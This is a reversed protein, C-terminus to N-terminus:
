CDRNYMSCSRPKTKTKRFYGTKYKSKNGKKGGSMSVSKTKSGGRGSKTVTRTRGTFPNTYTKTKSKNRRSKTAKRMASTKM